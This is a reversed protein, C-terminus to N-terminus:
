GQDDILLSNIAPRKQEGADGYIVNAILRTKFRVRLHSAFDPIATGCRNAAHIQRQRAREASPDSTVDRDCSPAMPSPSTWLHWGQDDILLSNITPGKQKSAHGYIVNRKLASMRAVPESPSRAILMVGGDTITVPM